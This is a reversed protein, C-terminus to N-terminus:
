ATKGAKGGQRVKVGSHPREPARYDASENRNSAGSRTAVNRPRGFKKRLEEKRPVKPGRFDAVKEPLKDVELWLVVDGVVPACRYGREGNLGARIVSASASQCVTEWVVGNHIQVAYNLTGVRNYLLVLRGRDSRAFVGAYEDNAPYAARYAAGAAEFDAAWPRPYETPDDPLDAPLAARLGEPLNDVMRSLRKTKRVIGFERADGVADPACRLHMYWTGKLSLVLRDRGNEVILGQYEPRDVYFQANEPPITETEMANVLREMKDPRSTRDVSGKRSSTAVAAVSVVHPARPAKALVKVCDGHKEGARQAPQVPRMARTQKAGTM